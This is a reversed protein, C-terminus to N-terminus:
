FPMKRVSGSCYGDCPTYPQEGLDPRKQALPLLIEARVAEGNCYAPDFRDKRVKTAVDHEAWKSRGFAQVDHFSGDAEVVAYLYVEPNGPRFEWDWLGGSYRLNPLRGCSAIEREGAPISFATTPFSTQTVRIEQLELHKVGNFRTLRAAGPFLVAGVTKYGSFTWQVGESNSVKVVAGTAPDFCAKAKGDYPIRASQCDVPRDKSKTTLEKSFKTKEPFWARVHVAGQLDDLVDLEIQPPGSRSLYQKGDMLLKVQHFDAFRLDTRSRDPEHYITIEGRKEQQSGPEIIVRARLEYSNMSSLDTLKNSREAAHIFATGAQSQAGARGCLAILLAISVVHAKKWSVQFMPM